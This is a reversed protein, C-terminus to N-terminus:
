SNSTVTHKANGYNNGSFVGVATEYTLGTTATPSVCPKGGLMVSVFVNKVGFAGTKTPFVANIPAAAESPDLVLNENADDYLEAMDADVTVTIGVNVLPDGNSNKVLIQQLTPESFYCGADPDLNKWATSAPNFSIFSDKPAGNEQGCGSFALTCVLVLWNFQKIKM